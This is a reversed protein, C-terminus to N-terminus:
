RVRIITLRPEVSANVQGGGPTALQLTFSPNGPPHLLRQYVGSGSRLTGTIDVDPGSTVAPELPYPRSFVGPSLAAYTTRFAWSRYRLEPPATFGPLDSVWLALAWRALTQEFPAGSVAEVNVAGQTTAQTLQRTVAHWAAQSTDAALQDVLYRIFLWGAGREGLSGTGFASVLYHKDTEAMYQYANRINGSLFSSFTAPNSPLYSRGGLEEAYHSLAENLWLLETSFTSAGPLLVHYKFSIMHQLEHVFVIPLLEKVRTVSHSCSYVGSPDPVLAYFLEGKNYNQDNDLRPDLDAGFFYGAVFGGGPATCTATSVLRNIAPTMLVIIVGNGDRDSETGFALTDIAYLRTDFTAVVEDYDAQTLSGQAELDVYLALRQGVAKVVATVNTMPLACNLNSCVKFSRQEGVQPPTRVLMAEGTVDSPTSAYSGRAEIERLMTHFRDAPSEQSAAAQLAAAAVLAPATMMAEGALRFQANRNPAGAVSQAVVLYEITDAATSASFRTCGDSSPTVSTYGGVPLDGVATSNDATCPRVQVDTGSNCAVALCSLWVMLSARKAM